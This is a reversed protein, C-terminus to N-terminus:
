KRKRNTKNEERCSSMRSTKGVSMHERRRNWYSQIFMILDQLSDIEMKCNYKRIYMRAMLVYTSEMVRLLHIQGYKDMRRSSTLMIVTSAWGMQCQIWRCHKMGEVQELPRQRWHNDSETQYNTMKMFILCILYPQMM